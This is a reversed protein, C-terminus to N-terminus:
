RDVQYVAVGGRAHLAHRHQPDWAPTGLATAVYWRVGIRRLHGFAIERDLAHEIADLENYRQIAINRRGGGAAIQNWTRALYAPMSTLAVLVTAADMPAYRAPLGATALVDGPGYHARLFAGAAVLGPDVAYSGLQRGWEFKPRAMEAASAWIWPLTLAVLAAAALRLRASGPREFQCLRRALLAATWIALVAYLLVFPRHLLETADYPSPVPMVAMEVAYLVLLAIPFMDIGRLQLVSRQLLMAAPFLLLFVGVAAPYILLMGFPFAAPEGFRELIRLYLGSYGTPEQMTHLQYLARELARGDDLAWSSGSPLQRLHEYGLIAAIAILAVGSLCLVWRRRVLPSSLAVVALWAPALLVFVHARFVFTAAVLTASAALAPGARTEMWRKLFVVALLAGGLAFTSGPYTLVNWHFSFFGNRLWYNSADPLVFLAALAAVGGAMGSLSAGLAYAAAALSLMGIPACVSTALALGTQDLPGAFAAPLLFSAYHYFARPFDVLWITGRSIARVDGFEGIVGGHIFYDVWAPLVGSQSLISPAAALDKCWAATFICCLAFGILDTRTASPEERARRRTALDLTIVVAAWIAFAAAATIGLLAILAWLSAGTAIVGLPWVTALPLDSAGLARLMVSGCAIVVYCCVAAAAFVLPLSATMGQAMLSGLLVTALATAALQTM